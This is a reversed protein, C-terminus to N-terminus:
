PHGCAELIDDVTKAAYDAVVPSLDPSLLARRRELYIRDRQTNLVQDYDWLQKRIDEPWVFASILPNRWSYSSSLLACGAFLSM